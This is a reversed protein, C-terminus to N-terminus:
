VSHEAVKPDTEPEATRVPSYHRPAAVLGRYKLINYYAIGLLSVALGGMNLPSLTEGALLVAVTITCVEKFMGAVSLTVSSTAKVLFFESMVLGFAMFSGTVVLMLTAFAADPNQLMPSHLARHGELLTALPLLTLGMAPAIHFLSDVPHGIEPCQKHM